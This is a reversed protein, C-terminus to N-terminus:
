RGDASDHTGFLTESLANLRDFFSRKVRSHDMFQGLESQMRAMSKCKSDVRGLQNCM